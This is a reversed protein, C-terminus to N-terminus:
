PGSVEEGQCKSPPDDEQPFWTLALAEISFLAILVGSTPIAATVVAIPTGSPQMFYSFGSLFNQYGFLAMWGAVCLIVGNHFSRTLMGKLGAMAEGFTSVKFHQKRRVAVAGGIFIGWVFAGLILGQLWGIPMDLARTVVNVFVACTFTALSTGALVALLSELRHLCRQVFGGPTHRSAPADGPQTREAYGESKTVRRTTAM